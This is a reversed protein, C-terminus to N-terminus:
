IFSFSTQGTIQVILFDEEFIQDKFHSFRLLFSAVVYAALIIQWRRIMEMLLVRAHPRVPM